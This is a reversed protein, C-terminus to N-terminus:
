PLPTNPPVADEPYPRNFGFVRLHRWSEAAVFSEDINGDSVLIRKIDLDLHEALFRYAAERKSPGYNHKEDALHVNKVKDGAGYLEYVRKIYPYEVEPTFKTYDDGNSILLQPHPAALAAIEANNTKHTESQHIPM